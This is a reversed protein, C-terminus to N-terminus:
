DGLLPLSLILHLRRYEPVWHPKWVIGLRLVHPFKKPPISVDPSPHVFGLGEVIVDPKGENRQIGYFTANLPVAGKDPEEEGDM